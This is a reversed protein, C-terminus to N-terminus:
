ADHARNSGASRLTPHDDDQAFLLWLPSLQQRSGHAGGGGTRYDPYQTDGVAKENPCRRRQNERRLLTFSSDCGQKRIHQGPLGESFVGEVCVQTFLPLFFAPGGNRPPPILHGARGWLPITVCADFNPSCGKWV